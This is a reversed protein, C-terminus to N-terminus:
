LHGTRKRQRNRLTGFTKEQFSTNRKFVGCKHFIGNFQNLKNRKSNATQKELKCCRNRKNNSNENDIDLIKKDKLLTLRTRNGTLNVKICKNGSERDILNGLKGVPFETQLLTNLIGM